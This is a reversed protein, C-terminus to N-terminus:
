NKVAIIMDRHAPRWGTSTKSGNTDGTGGSDTAPNTHAHNTESGTNVAASVGTPGNGAQGTSTAGATNTNGQTHVHSKIIYEFASGAGESGIATDNSAAVTPNTHAHQAISHGHQPGTHTHLTQSHQHGGEDGTIGQTHTHSPGSHVHDGQDWSGNHVDRTGTVIMIMKDNVTSTDRTWGTPATDMDFIMRVGSPLGGGSIQQDVYGKHAAITDSSPDGAPLGLEGTMTDGGAAVFWTPPHNDFTAADIDLNNHAAQTHDAVPVYDADELAQIDNFIDDQLQKTWVLRVIAGADHLNDGASGELNREEFTVTNGSIGGTEIKLYERLLPDEPDIVVYIPATIGAVSTFNVSLVGTPLTSSLSTEWANQTHTRSTM